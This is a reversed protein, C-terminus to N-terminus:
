DGDINITGLINKEILFQQYPRLDAEYTETKEGLEKVLANLEPITNCIVKVVKEGHFNKLQAPETKYKKPIKKADKEKIFFHPSFKNLTAFSQNNELRGFLQVQTTDDLTEYTSYIIYGKM